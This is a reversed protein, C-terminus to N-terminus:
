IINLFLFWHLKFLMGVFGALQKKISEQNIDDIVHKVIGNEIILLAKGTKSKAFLDALNFNINIGKRLLDLAEKKNKDLKLEAQDLEKKAVSIRSM